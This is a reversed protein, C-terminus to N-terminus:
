FSYGNYKGVVAGLVFIFIIFGIISLILGAISQGISRRGAIGVILGIFSLLFGPILFILNFVPLWCLIVGILSFVFGTIGLGNRTRNAEHAVYDDQMSGCHKCKIAKADILENCFKCNKQNNEM